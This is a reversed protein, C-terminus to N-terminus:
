VIDGCFELANPAAIVMWFVPVVASVLQASVHVNALPCVTEDSQFPMSLWLPALTVTVL